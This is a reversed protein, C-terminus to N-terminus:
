YLALCLEYMNQHPLKCGKWYHWDLSQWLSFHQHLKSIHVNQYDYNTLIIIQIRLLKSWASYVKSHNSSDSSASTKQTPKELHHDSPSCPCPSGAPQWEPRHSWQTCGARSWIRRRLHVCWPRGPSGAPPRIQQRHEARRWAWLLYYPLGQLLRELRKTPAGVQAHRLHM